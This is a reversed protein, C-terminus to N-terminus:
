ETRLSPNPILWPQKRGDKYLLVMYVANTGFYSGDKDVRIIPRGDAYPPVIRGVGGPLVNKGTPDTSVVLGSWLQADYEARYKKAFLIAVGDKNHNTAKWLTGKFDKPEIIPM